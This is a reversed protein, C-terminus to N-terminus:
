GRQPTLALEVRARRLLQPTKRTPKAIRSKSPSRQTGVPQAAATSRGRSRAEASPAASLAFAILVLIRLRPM